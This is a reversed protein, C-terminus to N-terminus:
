RYKWKGIKKAYSKVQLQTLGYRMKGFEKEWSRTSEFLEKAYGKKIALKDADIEIAKKLKSSLWYNIFLFVNEFFGIKNSQEAHCLEHVLLGIKEKESFKKRKTVFIVNIIPLYFGYNRFIKSEIIKPKKKKLRPFSANILKNAFEKYRM